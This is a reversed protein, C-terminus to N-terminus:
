IYIYIYTYTLNELIKTVQRKMKLMGNVKCKRINNIVKSQIQRSHDKM